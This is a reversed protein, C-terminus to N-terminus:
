RCARAPCGPWADYDIGGSGDAGPPPFCQASCGPASSYGSMSRRDYCTTGEPCDYADASECSAGRYCPTGYEPGWLKTVCQRVRTPGECYGNGGCPFDVAMMSDYCDVGGAVDDGARDDIEGGFDESTDPIGGGDDPVASSDSCGSCAAWLVVLLAAAEPRVLLAHANM